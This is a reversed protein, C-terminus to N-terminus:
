DLVLLKVHQNLCQKSAVHTVSFMRMFGSNQRRARGGFYTVEEVSSNFGSIRIFFKMNQLMKENGDAVTTAFHYYKVSIQRDVPPPPTCGERQASVGWASMGMPLCGGPLCEWQASGGRPLGGWASM